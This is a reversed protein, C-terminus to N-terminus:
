RDEKECCGEEMYLDICRNINTNKAYCLDNKGILFLISKLM